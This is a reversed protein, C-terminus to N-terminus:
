SKNKKGNNKTNHENDVKNPKYCTEYCTEYARNRYPNYNVRNLHNPNNGQTNCKCPTPIDWSNKTTTDRSHNLRDKIERNKIIFENQTVQKHKFLSKYKNDRSPALM